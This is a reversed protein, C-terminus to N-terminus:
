KKERRLSIIVQVFKEWMTQEMATSPTVTEVSPTSDGYIPVSTFIPLRCFFTYWLLAFTYVTTVAKRGPLSCVSIAFGTLILISFIILRLAFIM